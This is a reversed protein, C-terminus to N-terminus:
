KKSKHSDSKKSHSKNSREEKVKKASEDDKGKKASEDDKSSSKKSSSKTTTNSLISKGLAQIQDHIFYMKMLQEVQSRVSDVDLAVPMPRLPSMASLLAMVSCVVETNHHFPSFNQLIATLLNKKMNRGAQSDKKVMETMLDAVETLLDSSKPFRKLVECCYLQVNAGAATMHEVVGDVNHALATLMRLGHLQVSELKSHHQLRILMNKVGGCNSFTVTETQLINLMAKLACLHVPVSDPLRKMSQVCLQLGPQKSEKVKQILYIEAREDETLNDSVPHDVPPSSQSSPERKSKRSAAPLKPLPDISQSIPSPASSIVPINIDALSVPNFAIREPRPLSHKIILLSRCMEQAERQAQEAAALSLSAQRSCHEVGRKHVDAQNMLNDIQQKFSQSISLELAARQAAFSRLASDQEIRFREREAKFESMQKTCRMDKENVEAVRREFAALDATHHARQEDIRSREVELDRSRQDLENQLTRLRESTRDLESQLRTQKALQFDLEMQRISLDAATQHNAVVNSTDSQSLNDEDHSPEQKVRRRTSSGPEYEDEEENDGLRRLRKFTM